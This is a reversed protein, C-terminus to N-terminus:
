ASCTTFTTSSRSHSTESGSGSLLKKRQETKSCRSRIVRKMKLRRIRKRSGRPVKCLVQLLSKIPEAEVEEKSGWKRYAVIMKGFQTGYDGLHNIRVVNYGLSDFIKYLSNGIVTSRIHGIHFPKAINPSSYDICVTKGNGQDSGGYAAGAKIVADVAAGAVEAKNMFFNVYANVNEVKSFAENGALKESLDAAIMQPAKRMTKALRFCPFAFDGMSSDPPIEIM